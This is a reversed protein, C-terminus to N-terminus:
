HNGLVCSNVIKLLIYIMTSKQGFCKKYFM